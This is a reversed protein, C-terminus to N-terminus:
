PVPPEVELASIVPDLPEYSSLGCKQMMLGLKRALSRMRWKLEHTVVDLDHYIAEDDDPRSLAGSAFYEGIGTADWSSKLKEIRRHALEVIEAIEAVEPNAPVLKQVHDHADMLCKSMMRARELAGEADFSPQLAVEAAFTGSISAMLLSVFKPDFEGAVFSVATRVRAGQNDPVKLIGCVTEVLSLLRSLPPLENETLGRPYGFGDLKEHHEYVAQAVEAPYDTFQKILRMGIEPHTAIERWRDRDVGSIRRLNEQNLYMEGLDHLLAAHLASQANVSSSGDRLALTGALISSLVAHSFFEPNIARQVSLMLSTFPHLSNSRYLRRLPAIDPGVVVALFASSQCMAVAAQEIDFATVTGNVCISSELPKALSRTSVREQLEISLTHGKAVLIAGKVDLIDEAAQVILTQSAMALAALFPSNNRTM